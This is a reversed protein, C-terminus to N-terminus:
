DVLHLGISRVVARRRGVCGAHGPIGDDIAPANSFFTDTSVKEHLRHINAAPFRTRFHKRLNVRDEARAYQTTNNITHQIREVPAYAFNAILDNANASQRSQKARRYANAQM